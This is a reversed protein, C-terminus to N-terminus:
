GKCFIWWLSKQFETLPRLYSCKEAAQWVFTCLLKYHSLRLKSFGECIEAGLCFILFVTPLKLQSPELQRYAFNWSELMLISSPTQPSLCMSVRPYPHCALFIQCTIFNKVGKGRKAQEHLYYYYYYYDQATCVWAINIHL